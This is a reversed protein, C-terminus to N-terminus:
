LAKLLAKLFKWFLAVSTISVREDPTHLDHNTPGVSIIDLGPIKESFLGCELGAHIATVIPERNFVPTYADLATKLLKSNPDYPWAASRQSFSIDAGLYKALASANDRLQLNYFEAAGRGMASIKVYDKSTEIVGMNCSANVLGDIELSRVFVGCPVLLMAAIVQNSCKLTLMKDVTVEAKCEISLEPDSVRFQVALNKRCNELTANLKNEDAVWITAEAERPIANVKMGGSVEALRINDGLAGLVQGLIKISNGREKAIDAGSHGGTLGKVSVKYAKMDAVPTEHNISMKFELNIGAACGMTFRDDDSSDLNIMRRSKLTSVDLNEAGDMGTEEESTFVIELPPHDTGNQLLAMCLAMGLGNDAGLTTGRAKIFDGDVYLKIPDKLFDHTTDANKECVMDLHAQLMVPEHNEYGSSAPKKIILNHWEDQIVEFGLGRAFDAVYDSVAKENGSGRPIQSIAEFHTFVEKPEYTDLIM